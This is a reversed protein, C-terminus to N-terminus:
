PGLRGIDSCGYTITLTYLAHHIKQSVLFDCQTCMNLFTFLNPAICCHFWQLGCGLGVDSSLNSHSLWSFAKHGKNTATNNGISPMATQLIIGYKGIINVKDITVSRLWGCISETSRFLMCNLRYRCRDIQIYIYIDHKNAFLVYVNLIYIYICICIYYKGNYVFISILTLICM